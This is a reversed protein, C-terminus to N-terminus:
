SRDDRVEKFGNALYQVCSRWAAQGAGGMRLLYAPHPLQIGDPCVASAERAVIDGLLFIKSPRVVSVIQSLRPRCYLIEQITPDRNASQPADCPRCAVLTTTYVSPTYGVLRSAQAILRTLVGGSPGQFPRGLLDESKGPAIGIFMVDAPVAGEGIVVNRRWASMDCRTCDLFPLVLRKLENEACSPM